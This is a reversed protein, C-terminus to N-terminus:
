RRGHHEESARPAAHEVSHSASAAAPRRVTQAPRSPRAEYSRAASTQREVNPARYMSAARNMNPARYTSAARETNPERYTSTARETNPERYTSTARETNPERYTSTARETNPERYTSTARETNPERYTSTAHEANPERYTSARESNSGTGTERPIADAQAPQKFRAFASSAAVGRPTDRVTGNTTAQEVRRDAATVPAFHAPQRESSLPAAVAADTPRGHNVSALFNRNQAANTLHAQQTATADLHPENRYALEQQSPERQIGNPGGNYSTRNITVNDYNNIVTRNVYVNRVITENVNTVATNYAFHDGHWDGGFFGNGTYGYGYNV